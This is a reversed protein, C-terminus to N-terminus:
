NPESRNGRLDLTNLFMNLSYYAWSQTWRSYNIRNTGSATKQYVFRQEPEMYLTNFGRQVVKRVLSTDSEDKDLILLTVIAQAFNHTDLPYPTDHYYKATGESDILHYIYYDFGKKIAARIADDPCYQQIINLTELNYGTHFGDIFQHHSRNGYPWSGDDNQANLSTQCAKKALALHEPIGRITASKTVWAAAWLNANHVLASEDPIYRFFAQEATDHYLISVMFDASDLALQTYKPDQTVEGLAFLAQSVYVTTILNPKGLPVYFARAKWPFHYGWCPAQWVSPDCQQTILWDGLEIAQDLLARENSRQYELILGMIFLGVGKPNRKKPVGAIRRFNIPSRKFLQTWILGFLTNKLFPLGRFLLSNLGDFPDDGRFNDRTARLRLQQVAQVVQAVTTNTTM